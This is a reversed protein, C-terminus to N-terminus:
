GGLEAKAADFAATFTLGRERVLSHARTEIARFKATVADDTADADIIKKGDPATARNKQYIPTVNTAGGAAKKAQSATFLKVAADRNTQLLLKASEKDEIVDGFRELDTAVAEDRLKNVETELSTIRTARNQSEAMDTQAPTLKASIEADSATEPLGLLKCLEATHNMQSTPTPPTNSRNASVPRLATLKPRNTLGAGTLACPYFKFTSDEFKVSGAFEPSIYRYVKDIVEQRAPAAWDTELELGDRGATYRIEQGWGAAATAKDPDHSFHEYDILIDGSFGQNIAELQSDGLVTIGEVEAAEAMVGHGPVDYGAPISMTGPFEGRPVIHVWPKSAGETSTIPHLDRFRATCLPNM